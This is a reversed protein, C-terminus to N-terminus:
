ATCVSSDHLYWTDHDGRRDADEHREGEAESRHGNEGLVVRQHSGALGQGQAVVGQGLLLEPCDLVPQAVDLRPHELDAELQPGPAVGLRCLDGPLSGSQATRGLGLEGGPPGLRQDPLALEALRDLDQLLHFVLRVSMTRPQQEALQQDPGALAPGGFIGQHAQHPRVVVVLDLVGIGLTQGHDAARSMQKAGIPVGVVRVVLRLSDAGLLPHFGQQPPSVQKEFFVVRAM